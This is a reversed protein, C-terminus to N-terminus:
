YDFMLRNGPFVVGREAVALAATVVGPGIDSDGGIYGGSFDKSAQTHKTAKGKFNVGYPPDTVLAHAVIPTVPGQHQEPSAARYAGGCHFRPLAPLIELCDGLYLTCDGIIVPESAM